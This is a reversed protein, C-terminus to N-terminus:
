STVMARMDDIHRRLRLWRLCTICITARAQGRYCTCPRENLTSSNQSSTHRLTSRNGGYRGKKNARMEPRKKSIPRCM